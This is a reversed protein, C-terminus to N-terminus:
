SRNELIDTIEEVTLGTIKSIVEIPIGANHSNVVMNRREADKEAKLRNREAEGKKLGITEGKKLGIAEGKKLGKTEGKKLGIAEGKKLGKKLGKTEGDSYATRM